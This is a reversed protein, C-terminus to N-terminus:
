GKCKASQSNYKIKFWVKTNLLFESSQKPIPSKYSIQLEWLPWFSNQFLKYKSNTVPFCNTTRGAMLLM